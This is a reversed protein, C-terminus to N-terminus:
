HANKTSFRSISNGALPFYDDRQPSVDCADPLGHLRRSGQGEKHARRDRHNDNLIQPRGMPWCYGRVGDLHEAEIWLSEHASARGAMGLAAVAFLGAESIQTALM